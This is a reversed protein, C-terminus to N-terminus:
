QGNDVAVKKATDCRMKLAKIDPNGADNLYKSPDRASASRVPLTSVVAAAALTKM